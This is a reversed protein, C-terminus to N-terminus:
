PKGEPPDDDRKGLGFGRYGFAAGIVATMVGTVPLLTAASGRDLLAAAVTALWGLAVIIALTATVWGPLLPDRGPPTPM